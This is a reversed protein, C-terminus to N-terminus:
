GRWWRGTALRRGGVCFMTTPPRDAAGPPGTRAQLAEVPAPPPDTGADPSTSAKSMDVLECFGSYGARDVHHRSRCERVMLDEPLLRATRPARVAHKHMLATAKAAQPPPDDLELLVPVCAEITAHLDFPIPSAVHSAMLPIPM